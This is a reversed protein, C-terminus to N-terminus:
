RRLIKGFLLGLLLMLGAFSLTPYQGFAVYPTVGTRPQVNGKVVHRAFQPAHQDIGGKWNILSSLGNNSSRIMPRESERSRFRAMQLRQHPALSNGFWIDESVNLLTGALSIQNQWEQPFADEYCISVAFRNEAASLPGQPRTWPTFDSMPIDMLRLLPQLLGQMPLFEGFPVLHQKRYIMVQDSVAAVSNYYKMRDDIEERHLVGFIFDAPHNEVERWFEGSLTDIYDPVAAEPWVVLDVERHDQSSHLYDSVIRNSKAAEWKEMLPVNNQIIAVSLPEGDARTWATENLMWGMTWVLACVGAIAVNAWSVQRVVAVLVGTSVLVILGVLYVGGMPAFNSLPTDLYAYGTSLWPLGSLVWGRLWEFLIWLSPMLLVLRITPYHDSFWAQFWGALAPFLSIYAVLVFICLAAPVPSMGGFTNLSIYMWSIGTGFMSLGYVFGLWAAKKPTSRFWLAFLIAFSIMSLPWWHFPAFSLTNLTGAIVALLIYISGRAPLWSRLKM